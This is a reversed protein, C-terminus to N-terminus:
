KELYGDKIHIVRHCEKAVEEDHTVIIFTTKYEENIKKILSYIQKTSDSDLNGTPEDALIIKPNNLLARVIAVRQQQGGSIESVKREYLGELGVYKLLELAREEMKKSDSGIKIWNPLLINELVNFEPLLFHFQFIFGMHDNRFDAKENSNFHSIGKERYFIEGSSLNDLTGIINLLTTKGSGSKGMIAIIEGEYISLDIGKLVEIDGYNKHINNLKLIIKKTM